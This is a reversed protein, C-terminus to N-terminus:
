GAWEEPEIFQVHPFDSKRAGIGEKLRHHAILASLNEALRFLLAGGAREADIALREFLVDIIPPDTALYESQSLDTASVVGVVNIARYDSWTERTEPDVIEAPYDEINDVGLDRLAFLLDERMLPINSAKFFVPMEGKVRPDLEFRLPTSVAVDLRRGEIWPGTIEELAPYTGIRRLYGGRYKICELAYYKDV